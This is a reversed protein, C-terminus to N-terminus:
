VVKGDVATPPHPAAVSTSENARQQAKLQQEAERAARRERQYFVSGGTTYTHSLTLTWDLRTLDWNRAHGQWQGLAAIVTLGQAAVRYRLMKNFQTRNGKQLASTAGLLAAVTALIGAARVPWTLMCECAYVGPSWIENDAGGRSEGIPVLPEEKFKHTAKDWTSVPKPPLSPQWTDSGDSADSIPTPTYTGVM